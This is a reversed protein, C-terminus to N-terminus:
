FATLMHNSRITWVMKKVLQVWERQPALAAGMSLIVTLETFVNASSLVTLDMSAQGANQSTFIFFYFCNLYAKRDFLIKVAIEQFEILYHYVQLSNQNVM